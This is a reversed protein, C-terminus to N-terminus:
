FRFKYCLSINELFDVRWVVIIHSFSSQSVIFKGFLYMFIVQLTPYSFLVSPWINLLDKTKQKNRIINNAVNNINYYLALKLPM